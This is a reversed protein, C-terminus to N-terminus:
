RQYRNSRVRRYERIEEPTMGDTPRSRGTLRRREAERQDEPLKAVREDIHCVKCRKDLGDGTRRDPAFDERGRRKRCGACVKTKAGLRPKRPQTRRRRRYSTYSTSPGPSPAPRQRNVQEIRVNYAVVVLVLVIGLILWFWM